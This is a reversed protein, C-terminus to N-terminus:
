LAKNSKRIGRNSSTYSRGEDNELNKCNKCFKLESYNTCKEQEKKEIGTDFPCAPNILLCKASKEDLVTIDPRNHELTKNTQIPFDWM